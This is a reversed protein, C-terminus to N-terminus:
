YGSILQTMCQNIKEMNPRCYNAIYSSIYTQNRCSHTIVDAMLIGIKFDRLPLQSFYVRNYCASHLNIFRQTVPSVSNVDSCNTVRTTLGICIAVKRAEPIKDFNAQSEIYENAETFTAVDESSQESKLDKNEDYKKSVVNQKGNIYNTKAELKGNKDYYKGITM